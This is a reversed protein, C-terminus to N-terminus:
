ESEAQKAMLHRLIDNLNDEKLVDPYKDEFTLLADKASYEEKAYTEYLADLNEHELISQIMSHAKEPMHDWGDYLDHVAKDIRTYTLPDGAHQHERLIGVIDSIDHKYQRFAKLKMAVLYEGAITRINVINSFTRYHKSYMMLKPTYSSTNKFDDNLWGNPLGMTDTVYNIADKMSSSAQILADIDYTSDRFGYNILISAGGILTIDAPMGKRNLKRYQKAVEKLCRDIHEKGFTTDTSM